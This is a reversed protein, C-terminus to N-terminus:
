FQKTDAKYHVQYWVCDFLFVHKNSKIMEFITGGWDPRRWLVTSGHMCVKDERLCDQQLQLFHDDLLFLDVEKSEPVHQDFPYM